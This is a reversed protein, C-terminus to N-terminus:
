KRKKVQPKVMANEAPPLETTEIIETEIVEAVGADLWKRATEPSAEVTSGAQIEVSKAGSMRINKLLRLKM